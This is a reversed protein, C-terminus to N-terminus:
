QEPGRRRASLYRELELAIDDASPLEGAADAFPNEHPTGRVAGDYQTELAQILQQMQSNESIQADVDTRFTRSRERLEHTDIFRGVAAGIGELVRIAADPMSTESLYHPVLVVLGAVSREARTLAFELSHLAHAPVEVNSRWVSHDEIFDPRTGTVAMRVPRTHPVPMSIAHAWTTDSVRFQAHLQMLTDTLEGWRFDPEFGSLLLFPQGLSDHLLRLELSPVRFDTIVNDSITTIPRSARYDLLADTSFTAVVRGADQSNMAAITQQVTRGADRYGTLLAVLPLYPPVDGWAEGPQYLGQARLM